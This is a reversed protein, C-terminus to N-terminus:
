KGGLKLIRDWQAKNVPMVSLRSQKLLLMDQMLPEHKLQDLSVPHKLKERFKMKVAVFVGTSDQPDPFYESIVEAIGVVSREKVSHYILVLDGVKMQMLFNRAQYNRVGDWNTTKDRAFDDISYCGPESKTLWYNM